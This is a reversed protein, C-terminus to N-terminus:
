QQEEPRLPTRVGPRMEEVKFGAPVQFLEAAPESRNINTLRYVTEGFRPDTRRTMVVVQLEPSYWRESVVEIPLVNGVAGAAITMTTRTGEAHVGEIERAALTETVVDDFRAAATMASPPPPPPPPPPVALEFTRNDTTLQDVPPPTITWGPEGAPAGSSAITAGRPSMVTVRGGTVGQGDPGPGKFFQVTPKARYAVKQEYNLTLHVGTAPDIITVIPQDSAAVFAGVAIGQQERRVRGKADRAITASTRQEIRNGDALTQTIETVAEASYPADVVVGGVSLPDLSIVGIEASGIARAAGGVAVQEASSWAMSPPPPPPPPGQAQVGVSGIGIIAVLRIVRIM